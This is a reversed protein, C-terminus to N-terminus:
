HIANRQDIGKRPPAQTGTSSCNDSIPRSVSLQEIYKASTGFISIGLEDTFKWLISPDKLPSRVILWDSQSRPEECRGDYLVLTCGLSLGGVLFNWM